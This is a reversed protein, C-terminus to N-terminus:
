LPMVALDARLQMIAEGRREVGESEGEDGDRKQGVRAGRALAAPPLNERSEADGSPRLTAPSVAPLRTVM